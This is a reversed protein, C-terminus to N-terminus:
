RHLAIKACPKDHNKDNQMSLFMKADLCCGYCVRTVEFFCKVMEMMHAARARDKSSLLAPCM